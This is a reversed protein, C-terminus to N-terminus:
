NEKRLYADHLEISRFGLEALRCAGAFIELVNYSTKHKRCKKWIDEVTREAPAKSGLFDRLVEAVICCASVNTAKDRSAQGRTTDLGCKDVILNVTGAIWRNRKENDNANRGRTRTRTRVEDFFDRDLSQLLFERTEDSLAFNKDLGHAVLEFRAFLAPRYDTDPDGKDELEGIQALLRFVQRAHRFALAVRQDRDSSLKRASRM